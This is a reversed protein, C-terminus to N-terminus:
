LADGKIESKVETWMKGAAIICTRGSDPSTALITFTEKGVFLEVVRTGGGSMGKGTSSEEYRSGQLAAVFEKYPGCLSSQSYAAGIWMLLAVLALCVIVVLTKM